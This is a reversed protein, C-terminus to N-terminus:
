FPYHQDPDEISVWQVETFEQVGPLGGFRGYGSAKMGGLPMQAEDYVTPGNIHCCGFDLEASIALAKKIDRTFVASSLGYETDNAIRVCDETNKARVISAVPGFSEEHYISMEPTVRDLVTANMVTGDVSGGALLRAGKDVADKVLGEVRVAPARDVLSGLAANSTRPNGATLSKAKEALKSAFADAIGPAVVIRETSMCIQGSHMFSGFAAARVANDVDADDLVILPAKGGLELLVPKLYRAGMEAIIRGVRTSGTFNVRRVAPHAIMAEVVKGADAPANTIVNLVGAPLGAERMVQGLLNQTGPSLESAKLVVTNGCALATAFARVALIIPANWPAISLVVGAPRRVAMSFCGPKDAPIIEGKVHTTLSAAERLMNAALNTNFGVWAASAGTEMMMLDTFAQTKSALLDAAALLVARRKTPGLKSWAPFAAAAAEVAARADDVTAAAARTVVAGTLPDRREFTAGGAAPVDRNAIILPTDM